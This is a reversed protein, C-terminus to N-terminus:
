RDISPRSTETGSAGLSRGEREKTAGDARDAAM